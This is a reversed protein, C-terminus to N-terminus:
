RKRTDYLCSGRKRRCCASARELVGRRKHARDWIFQILMPYVKLYRTIMSIGVDIIYLMLVFVFLLGIFVSIWGLFFLIDVFVSNFFDMM